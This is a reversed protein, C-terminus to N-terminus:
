LSVARSWGGQHQTQHSQKSLKGTPHLYRPKLSANRDDQIYKIYRSNQTTKAKRIGTPSIGAESDSTGEESRRGRLPREGSNDGSKEVPGEPTLRALVRRSLRFFLRGACRRRAQATLLPEGTDALVEILNRRVLSDIAKSIAESACGTRSKLQSHTLWDVEQRRGTLPNTWGLTQDTVVLLLKLEAMKLTPLEERILASPILTCNSLRSNAASYRTV